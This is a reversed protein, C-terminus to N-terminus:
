DATSEAQFSKWKMARTFPEIRLIVEGNQFLRVTGNTESVTVAIAHTNKSIAAAAFHRSGLGTTLTLEVPATDIIRCSAEITGDAAVVFMGDLQAIEKIGERVRFDALSRERRPYGKVFDFGGPRSEDMVKRHDGVVFMTGVPKGERGERGIEVALDVVLKLTELPVKTDLMRLDRATLKGLRENLRILSITDISESDFSSYVAAVASGPNIWEAAVAELIAHTLRDSITMEPHDLRIVGLGAAIAGEAVKDVNTAVLLPLNIVRDALVAWDAEFDILLLVAAAEEARSLGYAASVCSYLANQDRPSVM